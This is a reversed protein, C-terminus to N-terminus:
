FSYHLVLNYSKDIFTEAGTKPATKWWDYEAILQFSPAFAYVLGPVIETERAGSGRYNVRSWNVRLNLRPQVQWRTGALYYTADDYGPRSFPHFADNREGQQDLVEVYSVSPGWTLTADGAMQRLRFSRGVRPDAGARDIRGSLGSVGLALARGPGFTWTPVLRITGTDALTADPDSEVDRGPLSGDVHDNNALLQLSYDVAFAASVPRSGVLEAGYDPNLKLGNFYQVNGFFSDDWLIGVKRYFKGAHLEGAATKAWAYAEQFWVDSVYFSRLKSDRARTQVHLGYRGDATAADFNVLFAYIEFKDKSGETQPLYDFLYIGGSLNFSGNPATVPAPPDAAAALPLLSALALSLPLYLLRPV